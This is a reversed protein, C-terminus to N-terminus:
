DRQLKYKVAEYVEQTDFYTERRSSSVIRCLINYLSIRDQGTMKQLETLSIDQCKRKNLRLLKKHWDAPPRGAM